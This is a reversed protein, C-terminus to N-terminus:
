LGNNTLHCDPNSCLSDYFNWLDVSFRGSNFDLDGTSRSVSGLYTREFYTLLSLLRPHDKAIRQMLLEYVEDIDSKPVFALAILMRVCRAFEINTRYVKKLGIENVHKHISQSFHFFCYFIKFDSFVESFAASAALEFDLMMSADAFQEFHESSTVLEHLKKFFHLYTCKTKNPLLAFVCPIVKDDITTHISYSQFFLSPCSRFTGDGVWGNFLALLNINRTTGFIMIRDSTRPGDDITYFM